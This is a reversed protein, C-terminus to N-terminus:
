RLSDIVEDIHATLWRDLAPSINVICSPRADYETVALYAIAAGNSHTVWIDGDESIEALSKAVNKDPLLGEFLRTMNHDGEKAHIGHILRIVTM